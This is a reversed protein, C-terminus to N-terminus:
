YGIPEVPVALFAEDDVKYLSELAQWQPSDRMGMVENISGNHTVL